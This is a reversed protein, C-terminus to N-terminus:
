AIKTKRSRRTNNKPKMSTKDLNVVVEEVKERNGMIGAVVEKREDMDEGRLYTLLGSKGQDYDPGTYIKRNLFLDNRHKVDVVKALDPVKSLLHAVIKHKREVAEKRITERDALLNVLNVITPNQSEIMAAKVEDFLSVFQEKDWGYIEKMTYEVLDDLGRIKKINALNRENSETKGNKLYGAVDVGFLVNPVAERQKYDAVIPSFRKMLLEEVKKKNENLSMLMDDYVKAELDFDFNTNIMRNINQTNEKLYKEILSFLEADGM